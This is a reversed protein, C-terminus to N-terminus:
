AGFRKDAENKYAYMIRSVALPLNAAALVRLLPNSFEYRIYFDIQTGENEPTLQWTNKLERFPGRVLDVDVTRATPDGAVDTSFTESFGRFAVLSEGRCLRMHGEERERSVRIAKIWPIFDPYRRIDYVLDFIQDPGYPM